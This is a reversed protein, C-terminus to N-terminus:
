LIPPLSTIADYEGGSGTSAPPQAMWVSPSFNFIEGVNASSNNEAPTASRLTGRSRLLQVQKAVFAGNVVLQNQCASYVNPGTTSVAAAPLAPNACTYITGGTAGNPQAIYVGDIRSVGQAIYINGRVVLQFLPLNGANWGGPYQIPGNILVDGNVYLSVRSGGGLNGSLTLPGNATHVGDPITALNLSTGTLATSPPKTGYYDPICPLSGLQGGYSTGSATTNAFALGSPTGAPGGGQATSFEAIQRLALVAYQTGAGAYGNVGGGKNWGVVAANPNNTCVSPATSIGSGASIDGSFVKVYPKSGVRVCAVYNATGGTHSSPTVQLTRCITRNLSGPPIPDTTETVMTTNGRPFVRPCGHAPQVYGPDSTTFPAPNPSYGNIARGAIICTTNQSQTTGNNNVSYIFELKDGVEVVSGAPPAADNVEVTINPQLTFDYRVVACVPTGRGNRSGTGNIPDWGTRRCINTGAPTGAPVTYNENFVNKEQGSTYVGSNASGGVTANTISNLAVWWINVPNTSDPGGNRVYYRFQITDGPRPTANNVTTRGTMTFNPALDTLPTPNGVPNACQRRIAYHSGNPNTFVIAAGGGNDDYFADDNPSGGGRPGQYYSNLTFNYNPFWQIRGAAEYARVRQEWEAIQAATPPRTRSSGIMTQMIFAAGTKEQANGSGNNDIDLKTYKMFNILETANNVSAPIANGDYDNPLVYTGQTDLANTFYGRWEGRGYVGGGPYAEATTGTYAVLFSLSALIALALKKV